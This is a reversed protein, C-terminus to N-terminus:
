FTAGPITWSISACSKLVLGIEMRVLSSQRSLPPSQSLLSVLKSLQRLAMKSSNSILVVSPHTSTINQPMLERPM